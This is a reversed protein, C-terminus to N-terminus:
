GHKACFPCRTATSLEKNVPFPEGCTKCIKSYIEDIKTNRLYESVSSLPIRMAQAIQLCSCRLKIALYLIRLKKESTLRYAYNSKSQRKTTQCSIQNNSNKYCFPCYEISSLEATTPYVLGCKKCVQERLENPNVESLYMRAKRVSIRMCRAIQSLGCGLKLYYLMKLKDKDSLKAKKGTEQSSARCWRKVTRASINLLNSTVQLTYGASVLAAADIKTQNDIREKGQCLQM